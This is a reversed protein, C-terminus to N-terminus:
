NCAVYKLANVYDVSGMVINVFVIAIIVVLYDKTQPGNGITQTPKTACFPINYEM